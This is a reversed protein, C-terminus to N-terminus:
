FEFTKLELELGSRFLEIRITKNLLILESLFEFSGIDRLVIQYFFHNAVNKM